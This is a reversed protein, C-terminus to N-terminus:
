GSHNQQVRVVLERLRSSLAHPFHLDLEVSVRDYYDLTAKKGKQFLSWVQQGRRGLQHEIDGLNHLKDAATVAQAGPSMSAIACITAEKRQRWSLSKDESVEEVYSRVSEGFDRGVDAATVDCDEVTDHLLGAICIDEPLGHRSLLFGVHLPHVVYPVEPQGKRTQGHHAQIAFAIARELAESYCTGSGGFAM